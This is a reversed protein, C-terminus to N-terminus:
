KNLIYLNISYKASNPSEVESNNALKINKWTPYFTILDVQLMNSTKDLIKTTAIIDM